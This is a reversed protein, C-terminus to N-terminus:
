GISKRLIQVSLLLAVFSVVLHFYNEIKGLLMGFPNHFLIGLFGLLLFFIGFLLGLFAVSRDIKRTSRDKDWKRILLLIFIGWSIHISAHLPDTRAYIPPPNYITRLFISLLGQLLLGLGLWWLYSRLTKTM